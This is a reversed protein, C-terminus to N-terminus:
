KPSEAANIEFHGQDSDISLHTIAEGRCAHSMIIAFNLGSAFSGVLLCTDYSEVPRARYFEGRVDSLKGAGLVRVAACLMQLYHSMANTAPGDVIPRGPEGLKETWAARQYYAMGRPWLALIRM